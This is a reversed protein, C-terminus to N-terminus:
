VESVKRFTLPSLDIRMSKITWGQDVINRSVQFQVSQARRGPPNARLSRIVDTNTSVGSAWLLTDWVGVDWLGGTTLGGFSLNFNHASSSDEDMWVQWTGTVPDTQALFEIGVRPFNKRVLPGGFNFARTVLRSEYAAGNDNYLETDGFRFINSSGSLVPSGIYLRRENGDTATVFSAGVAGGTFKTWAVGAQGLGAYDMVWTVNNLTGTLNPDPISLWYQSEAPITASPFTDVQSTVRRLDDIRESLRAKALDGGSRLLAQLSLVGEDSLFVLDGLIAQVSWASKCGVNNLLEVVDWQSQDTNISGYRIAYIRHRKFVIMQDQYPHIATIVSGENGGINFTGSGAALGPDTTWDEHNGLVCIKISNPAAEDVIFVRENQVAIYRGKPPSGALAVADPTANTDEIKVPNANGGLGQNVGILDDNFVVWQWYTDTPLTLSNTHDAWLNTGNFRRIRDDLTCFVASTGNSQRFEVLSTIRSTLAVGATSLNFVGNRTRLNQSDDLELNLAEVVENEALENNPQRQNVGGGFDSFYFERTAM